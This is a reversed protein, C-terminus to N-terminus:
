IKKNQEEKIKQIEEKVKIEQKANWDKIGEDLTYRIQKYMEQNLSKIPAEKKAPIGMYEKIVKIEDNDHQQLKKLAEEESYNTQRCVLPVKAHLDDKCCFTVKSM